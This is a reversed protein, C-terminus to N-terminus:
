GFYVNIRFIRLKITSSGDHIQSVEMKPPWVGCCTCKSKGVYDDTWVRKNAFFREMIQNILGTVLGLVSCVIIDLLSLFLNTPWVRWRHNKRMMKQPTKMPKSLGRGSGWDERTGRESTAMGTRKPGGQPIKLQDLSSNSFFDAFYHHIGSNYSTLQSFGM